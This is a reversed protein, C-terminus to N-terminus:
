TFLLKKVIAIKDNGKIYAPILRSYTLHLAPGNALLGYGMFNVTRQMDYKDKNEGKM